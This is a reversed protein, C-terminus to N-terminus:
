RLDVIEAKPYQNRNIEYYSDAKKEIKDMKNISIHISSGDFSNTIIYKPQYNKKDIDIKMETISGKTKPKLSLTHYVKSDEMMEITYSKEASQIFYLPNIQVLEDYSPSSFNLTNQSADYYTLLAGKYVALISAYSLHFKDQDLIMEGDMKNVVKNRKDYVTSEFNIRTAKKKDFVVSKSKGLIEKATQAKASVSFIFLSIALLLVRKLM